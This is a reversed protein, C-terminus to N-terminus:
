AYKFITSLLGSQKRFFFIYAPVADDRDLAGFHKPYCDEFLSTVKELFPSSLGLQPLYSELCRTVRRDGYPVVEVLQFNATKAAREVDERLFLHKDERDALVEADGVYKLNFHLEHIWNGLRILDEDANNDGGRVLTELVDSMSLVLAQHYKFGPEAFILTGRHKLTAFCDKFFGEYDLIHHLVFNGIICDVSEPPFIREASSYTAYTVKKALHEGNEVRAKCISLMKPSIDTVIAENISINKLLGKTFGGTGAGIEVLVDYSGKLRRGLTEKVDAFVQLSTEDSVSYHEDYDLDDLKTFVGEPVFCLIGDACPFQTGCAKCSM